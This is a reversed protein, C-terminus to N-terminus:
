QPLGCRIFELIAMREEVTMPVGADPPPMECTNIQDRITDYWDKVHAYDKLGWLTEGPHTPDPTAGNHCLNGCRAQFIPEVQSWIVPPAPCATPAGGKLCGVYGTDIIAGDSLTTGGTGGSGSGGSGGTGAGGDANNGDAATCGLLGGGALTSVAIM